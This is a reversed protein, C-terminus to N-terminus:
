GKVAAVEDVYRLAVGQEAAGDAVVQENGAGTGSVVVEPTNEVEDTAVKDGVERLAKVGNAGLSATPEALALGLADSDGTGQESAAANHQEVLGRRGQVGGRLPM